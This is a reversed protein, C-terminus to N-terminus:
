VSVPDGPSEGGTLENYRNYTEIEIRRTSQYQGVIGLAALVIFSITWFPGQSLAQHIPNQLLQDRPVGGFLFLFTALIIGAGLWATAFIVVWKQINLVLVAVAFIVAVVIGVLWVIINFNLGIAELLGVALTYGLAGGIIAVAAFYFLYSLLAFVLAVFFGVAWSTVTALFADGFVAQVTQAGLGFGFFFGWIPLLFLFFRYGGFLLISGFLLAIIGGVALAFFSEGTVISRRDFPGIMGIEPSLQQEAAGHNSM